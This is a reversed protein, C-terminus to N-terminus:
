PVGADPDGPSAGVWALVTGSKAELVRVPVSGELAAIDRKDAVVLVGEGGRGTLTGARLHQLYEPDITVHFPAYVSLTPSERAFVLVPGRLSLAAVHGEVSRAVHALAGYNNRGSRIQATLANGANRALSVGLAAVAAALLLRSGWPLSGSRRAAACLLWAAMICLPPLAPLVYWWVKNQAVSFLVVPVLAAVTLTVAEEHRRRWWDQLVGPQFPRAQDAWFAAPVVLPWLHAFQDALFTVYYLPGQMHTTAISGAQTARQWVSWYLHKRWFAAGNLVTQAAYWPAIIVALVAAAKVYDAGTWRRYDRLLVHLLALTVWLSFAAAGKTMFAAGAFAAVTLRMGPRRRSAWQGWIAAVSCFLLLSDPSAHRSGNELVMANCLMLVGAAFGTWIGGLTAGLGVTAALAMGGFMVGPLRSSFESFGLVRMPVQGLWFYLPPKNYYPLQNYHMTVQDGTRLLERIVAAYSAEDWDELPFDGL